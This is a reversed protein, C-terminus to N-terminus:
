PVYTYLNKLHPVDGAGQASGAREQQVIELGFLMEGVADDLPQVVLGCDGHSSRVAEAGEADKFKGEIM